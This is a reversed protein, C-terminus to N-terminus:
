SAVLSKGLCWTCHYEKRAQRQVARQWPQYEQSGQQQGHGKQNEESEENTEDRRRVRHKDFLTM